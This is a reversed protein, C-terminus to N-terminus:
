LERMVQHLLPASGALMWPQPQRDFRLSENGHRLLAPVAVVKLNRNDESDEPFDCTYTISKNQCTKKTKWLIEEGSRQAKTGQM